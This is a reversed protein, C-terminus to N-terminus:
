FTHSQFAAFTAARIQRVVNALPGPWHREQLAERCSQPLHAALEIGWLFPASM